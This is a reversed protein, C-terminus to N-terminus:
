RRCSICTATCSGKCRVLRPRPRSRPKMFRSGDLCWLRQLPPSIFTFVGFRAPRRWRQPTTTCARSMVWLPALSPCTASWNKYFPPCRRQLCRRLLVGWQARLPRQLDFFTHACLAYRSTSWLRRPFSPFPRSTCPAHAAAPGRPCTRVASPPWDITKNYIHVPAPSTSRYLSVVSAAARQQDADGLVAM